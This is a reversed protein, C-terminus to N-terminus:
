AARSEMLHAEDALVYSVARAVADAKTKGWFSKGSQKIVCIWGDSIQHGTTLVRNMSLWNVLTAFSYQPVNTDADIDPESRLTTTTGKTCWWGSVPGIPSVGNSVNHQQEIEAKTM